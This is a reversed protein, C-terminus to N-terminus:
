LHAVKWQNAYVRAMKQPYIYRSLSGKDEPHAAKALAHVEEPTDGVFLEEGAVVIFKGRHQTYIEHAHAQLWASNREAQEWQARFRAIEVPDTVEEMAVQIPSLPM